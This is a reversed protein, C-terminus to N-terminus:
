FRYSGEIGLQRPPTIAGIPTGLVSLGQGGISSVYQKDFLNNVYFAAGWQGGSQTWGLRLNTLNVSDGVTFGTYDGCTGQFTSDANCRSHGRYAHQLNLALDGNEGLSWTYNAGVSASWRPEGTPQGSLDVGSGTTAGDDFTSDIYAASLNLTLQSSAKWLWEIDLGDASQDTSQVVYQPISSSTSAPVLQLSQRDSYDYHYISANLSMNWDRFVNKIGLEYNRVKEPAYESNIQVGDNGGAKYGKSASLFVMTDPTFAYDLVFRPSTDNWDGDRKVTVGVANGFVINNRLVTLLQPPISALLGLANLNFMTRDLEAATRPRNFWTFSKEDRTHRLGVTLNLQDNVHWIVDGFVAQSDSKMTNDIQESYPNGTFGFPFGFPRLQADICSLPGGCPARVGQNYLLTDITSTSSNVINSQKGEEHYVSLGAVWDVTENAGAFKFEQYLTRNDQTVGSDLRLFPDNTGDQDEFHELEAESFASTATITGWDYRGTFALTGGDYAKLQRGNAVDQYVLVERPDQYSAPNPPFPARLSTNSLQPLVGIQLRQPEKLREHDWSLQVEWTDGLSGGLAMRTGEQRDLAYHQRTVADRRWGDSRNVVGSVRLGFTEGLPLNLLGDVYRQGDTGYRTRANAEFDVSPANTVISIAGAATNRGFLTGQPGKLVEVRQTDNFALLSGGGNTQYIGNVYVGVAQDIGMSFGDTAIGRLSFSPQTHDFPDVVLGPVYASIGALDTASLDQIQQEGVVSLAIPVKQLEQTRSQATVTITDLETAPDAASPESTQAALTLPLCSLALTVARSLAQRRTKITM